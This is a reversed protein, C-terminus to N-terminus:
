IALKAIRYAGAARLTCYLYQTNHPGAFDRRRARSVLYLCRDSRDWGVPEMCCRYRDGSLFTQHGHVITINYFTTAFHHVHLAASGTGTEVNGEVVREM